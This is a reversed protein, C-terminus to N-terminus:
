DEPHYSQRPSGDMKVLKPQFIAVTEVLDAQAAMVTDIDKYCNPVEDLGASLVEIGKEKLKRNIINWDFRKFAEARSMRRGAGHAASNLAAAVGRGRVVYGAASMSGPIVGLVGEGAPTAGKRHVILEQGDISEVWAFNHHNEVGGLVPLRIAEALQAHIIAHNASAYRGALQMAEWYEAGASWDLDLWALHQFEKPLGSHSNMAIQTYHNAIEYGFRRSGSHSLLALYKGVPVSGSPTEFPESVVLAGFEVFHNGSGSSGLQKRAIDKFRRAVPHTQWTPDDLVAHQRPTSWANGAGFCTNEELAKRFREKKQELIHPPTDFITLRMRCAIDVGVAYPIVANHTALVGGIPLGYGQHADPMLAGRVARFRQVPVAVSVIVEGRDNIRVRSASQGDLAEVRYPQLTRQLFDRAQADDAPPLARALSCLSAWGAAPKVCGALLAPWLERTRDSDFGPLESWSVPVWRARERVIPAAGAALPPVATGGIPPTTQATGGTAPATAAGTAGTRPLSAPPVSPATSTAPPEACGAVMGLIAAVAAGRVGTRWGRGAPLRARRMHTMKRSISAASASSSNMTQHVM